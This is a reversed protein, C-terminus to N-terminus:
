ANEMNQPEGRVGFRYVGRECPINKRWLFWVGGINLDRTMWGKREHREVYPALVLEHNAHRFRKAM